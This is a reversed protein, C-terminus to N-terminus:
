PNVGMYLYIFLDIQNVHGPKCLCLLLAPTGLRTEREGRTWERRKRDKVSEGGSLRGRAESSGDAELLTPPDRGDIM